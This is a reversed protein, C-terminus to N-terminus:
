HSTKIELGQFSSRQQLYTTSFVKYLNDTGLLCDMGDFNCETINAEENCFGNGVYPPPFGYECTEALFCNCENCHYRNSLAGSKSVCKGNMWLCEGNCSSTENIEPCQSCSRAYHNGYSINGSIPLESLCCDGGDYLCEANNMEDNCFGNGILANPVGNGTIQGFCACESCFESNICSGCCDGGDYMCEANNTEDNCFGDGVLSHFGSSCTQNFYCVCDLCYDTKINVCCDGGDYNCLVNNTEDHCFSDGM